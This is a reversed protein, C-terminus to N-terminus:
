IQVKKAEQQSFQGQLVSFEIVLTHKGYLKRQISNASFVDAKRM